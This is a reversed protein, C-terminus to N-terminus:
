SKKVCLFNTKFAPAPAHHNELEHPANSDSPKTRVYSPLFVSAFTIPEDHGQELKKASM